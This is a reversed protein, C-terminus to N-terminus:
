NLSHPMELTFDGIEAEFSHGDDRQMRYSGRMAGSATRLPCASQYEFAEGPELRPTEGVVGPGRVQEVHGTADTIVWHRSVLQVPEQGENSIRIKYGFYYHNRSPVSRDPVYFSRAYVRVGHTITDSAGM